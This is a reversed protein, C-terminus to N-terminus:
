FRPGTCISITRTLRSVRSCTEATICRLLFLSIKCIFNFILFYYLSVLSINLGLDLQERAQTIMEDNFYQNQANRVPPETGIAEIKTFIEALNRDNREPILNIENLKNTIQEFQHDFYNM